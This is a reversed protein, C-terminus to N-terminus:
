VFEPTGDNDKDAAKFRQEVVALYEDNTLTRNHDSDAAAFDERSLRGHLEKISVTGDKGADLKDFLDGAAKKVGVLDDYDTDFWGVLTSKKTRAL